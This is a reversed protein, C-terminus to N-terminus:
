FFFLILGVIPIFFGLFGWGINGKKEELNNVNNNKSEM